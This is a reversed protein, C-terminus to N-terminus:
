WIKGTQHVVLFANSDGPVQDFWVLGSRVDGPKHVFAQPFRLDEKFFPRVAVPRALEGITAPMGRNSALANEPQKLMVLYEILDTFEQLSLAVHLGEPMLSVTSGRQEQIDGRSVRVLTGDAQMLETWDKTVQKVVGQFEDGSKTEVTTTGYGVAIASSPELISRILERRPFKDGVASLDPGAKGASGDVTHCKVCGGMHDAVFLEAGRRADGERRMAFDVYERLEPIAAPKPSQAQASVTGIPSAILLLLWSITRMIRSVLCRFDKHRTQRM